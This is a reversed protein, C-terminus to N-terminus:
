LYNILWVVGYGLLCGATIFPMAPYFKGKESKYLLISLAITVFISIIFTQLLADFRPIENIKILSEMVAGSFILPFAIDGGGLIAIRGEEKKKKIEKPKLKHVVPLKEYGYPIFLGAFVKSETQFNAMKVMHKSKWVAFMDYASIVLLVMVAWFVDLLPVFIVAIGAYMLLETLNHVYVNPKWIKWAAFFLAVAYAIYKNVFIGLAVTTTLWVALFFWTKWINVKRFRILLLVIGTGILVASIIYWFSVGPEMEPREGIATDSYVVEIEGTDTKKVDQISSNIIYLGLIQSVLFFLILITTVKLTHKM